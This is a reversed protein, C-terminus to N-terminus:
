KWLNDAEIVTYKGERLEAYAQEIDAKTIKPFSLEEQPEYPVKLAKLIAKVATLQDSNKPHILLAEM